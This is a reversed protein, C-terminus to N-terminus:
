LAVKGIQAVEAPLVYRALEDATPLLLNEPVKQGDTVFSIPMENRLVDGIIAGKSETEDSKTIIVRRPSFRHFRKIIRTIDESRTTASIVLHVRADATETIGQLKNLRALDSPSCGPTDIMVLDRDELTSLLNGLAGVDTCAFTPVALLEGYRALQDHGGVRFLDTSIMAVRKQHRAKAHGAIKAITTTKGSGTPGIFVSVVKAKAILEAPPDIILMEALMSRVRNRLDTPAPNGHSADTVLHDALDPDVGQGALEAYVGGPQQSRSPVAKTILRLARKLETVEDLVEEIRLDSSQLRSAVRPAIGAASLNGLGLVDGSRQQPQTKPVAAAARDPKILASALQVVPQTIGPEACTEKAAATVEWNQRRVLRFPRKAVSQTSLILADPGLDRKIQDLAEQITKTRYTKANM